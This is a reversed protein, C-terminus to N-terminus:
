SYLMSYMVPLEASLFVCSVVEQNQEVNSNGDALVSDAYSYATLEPTVKIPSKWKCTNRAVTAAEQCRQSAVDYDAANIDSCVCLLNSLCVFMWIPWYLHLLLVRYRLTAFSIVTAGILCLNVFQPCKIELMWWKLGTVIVDVLKSPSVKIWGCPYFLPISTSYRIRFDVVDADNCITFM